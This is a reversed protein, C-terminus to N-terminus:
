KLIDLVTFMKNVIASASGSYNNVIVSVVYKTGDKSQHYGAFSKAGGITGSKLKMLNYVPLADYFYDFWTQKQAYLLVKTLANATIRNQPSLGSGDQINLASSEIGRENWFAKIIAVGDETDGIGKKEYAISKCISEGYLNISKKLFWYNISDLSVSYSNGILAIPKSDTVNLKNLEKFGNNISIGNTAFSSELVQQLQNTPHPLAGAITFKEVGAPVTGEVFGNNTYPSLYIYANDGSGAKATQLNNVFHNNLLQPETGIIKVSDGVQNGPAMLLNYQNEHWNLAWTGAGYYNGIDNWIWGGPLPQYTFQRNDFYVSGTVKQIGKDKLLQIWNQLVINENTSNYRWSGLSPDGYGTLFLDGNLVGANINGNYGWSTKFKYNAGLMEFASVSTIIKQCSAPALGIQANKEFVLENTAANVISIGVIAHKMQSDAEFKQVAKELQLAINQAFLSLHLFCCCFLISLQKM